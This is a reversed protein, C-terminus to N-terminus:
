IIIIIVKFNYAVSLGMAHTPRVGPSWLLKTLNYWSVFAKAFHGLEMQENRLKLFLLNLYFEGSIFIMVEGKIWFIKLDFTKSITESDNKM